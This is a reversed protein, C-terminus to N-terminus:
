TKSGLHYGFWALVREYSETAATAVYSARTDDFFAHGAEGYIRVDYPVSLKAAFARVADAPISTDRGGFSGSLPIKVDAANQKTVDGYLVAAASFTRSNVITQRLAIGGGMCFGLVGARLAPKRSQVPDAAHLAWAAAAALDKDVTGDVLKGAFPRFLTFDTAGDGNPAGLGSYLAPAIAVYGEKALRRVTDRLQADVGWVAQVVVIAGGIKADDKPQAAYADFTRGEYSLTPLSITLSPDNEAVLPPHPTGLADAALAPVASAAVLAAGAGLGVFSRRSLAPDTADTPDPPNDM